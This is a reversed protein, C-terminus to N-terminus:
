SSPEGVVEATPYCVTMWQDPADGESWGNVTNPREREAPDIIFGAEILRHGFSAPAFPINAPGADCHVLLRVPNSEADSSGDAPAMLPAVVLCWRRKSVYVLARHPGSSRM